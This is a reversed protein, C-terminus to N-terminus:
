YNQITKTNASDKEALDYAEWFHTVDETVIKAM